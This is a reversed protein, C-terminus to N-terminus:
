KKFDKANIGLERLKKSLNSKDMSARRAAESIKGNTETLLVSLFERDFKAIAREKAQNYNFEKTGVNSSSVNLYLVSSLDKAQIIEGEASIVGDNIVNMLERVNGPWHYALLLERAKEDFAKVKREHKQSLKQLFYEAIDMTDDRRERLPPLHIMFKALRFYLDQLFDAKEILQQVNPNAASIIRVDAQRVVTEGLRSFEGTELVRLLLMQFKLSSKTIEDLFITGGDAAEFYGAKDKDAGSFAGKVHGFFESILLEANVFTACNLPVFAQKHRKSKQHLVQAVLDKGTGTEGLILVPSETGAVNEIRKCAELMAMSKMGKIEDYGKSKAFMEELQRRRDIQGRLDATEAELQRRELANKVAVSILEAFECLLRGTEDDFIAKVDRNDVYIVGLLEGEHRLPASAVSLIGLRRISHSKDVSPDEMANKIVLYQGSERVQKVITTSIQAEPQEINKQHHDRAVEILPEGKPGYVIIMGRQAKTHEIVKDMALPLLKSLDTEAFLAKGTEFFFKGVEILTRYSSM